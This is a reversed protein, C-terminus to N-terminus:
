FELGSITPLCLILYEQYNEASITVLKGFGVTIALGSFITSIIEIDQASMRRQCPFALNVPPFMLHLLYNVEANAYRDHSERVETRKGFLANAEDFFLIVISTEAEQFLRALNKETEGIYKSVVGVMDIGYRAQKLHYALIKEAM